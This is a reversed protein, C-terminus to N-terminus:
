FLGDTSRRIFRECFRQAGQKSKFHRQEYLRDNLFIHVFFDTVRSKGSVFTHCRWIKLTFKGYFESYVLDYPEFDYDNPDIM